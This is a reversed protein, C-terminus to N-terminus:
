NKLIHLKTRFQWSSESIIWSKWFESASDSWNQIWIMIRVHYLVRCENYENQISIDTLKVQIHLKTRFSWASESIIRSKWFESASDLWNRTWILIRVRYLVGWLKYANTKSSYVIQKLAILGIRLYESKELVEICLGVFESNLDPNLWSIPSGM